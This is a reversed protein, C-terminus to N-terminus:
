KVTVTIKRCVGNNAIVYVTCKGRSRATITGAKSVKAVKKDDTYYRLEAAHTLLKKKSNEKEAEAKIKFTKKYEENTLSLIVKTKNATIKKANTRKEYKMAVHIASSKAVYKKKGDAMQYAAIYYKYARDKKLKKHTYTRKAAKVTKLKKYNRRGDCYSWYVEYGSADKWKLWTLKIGDSGKQKGTALLISLDKRKDIENGTQGSEDPVSTPAEPEATVGPAPTPAEPEATVGPTPTPTGPEITVGPASTGPETTMGPAPTPTGSETPEGPVPTLTGSGGSGASGGPVPMLTGPGTQKPSDKYCIAYTSFKDTEFTFETSEEKYTGDIIDTKGEHLRIIQYNRVTLVDKNRIKEPIVITVSIPKELEHIITKEGNGVQKFLSADFYTVEAGAGVSEEATKQVQAKEEEEIEVDPAVELWIKASAGSDIEAIEEETLVSQALEEKSNNMVTDPAGPLVEVEKEIKGADPDAPIGLPDITRYLKAGCRECIKYQRGSEKETAEKEVTWQEPFTHGAAPITETASGNNDTYDKGELTAKAQYGKTGIETCAAEKIVTYSVEGSLTKTHSSDNKCIFEATATNTDGDKGWTWVPEDWDHGAAPITEKKKEECTYAVGDYVLSATYSREGAAECAAAKTVESAVKVDGDAEGTTKTEAFDCRWDSDAHACTITATATFDDAAEAWKWVVKYSHGAAPIATTEKKGCRSCIHEKTGDATCSVARTTKWEGFSHASVTVTRSSENGAKDTVTITKTVAQGNDALKLLFSNDADLTVSTNNVTVGNEALNAETVTVKTGECCVGENTIGEIEIQPVTQDLMFGESDAYSINGANDEAKVCIVYNNDESISFSGNYEQWATIQEVNAKEMGKNSLYYWVEKVKSGADTTTITVTQSERFFIGFTLSNLLRGVWTKDAMKITIDPAKKDAVGEVTVNMDKSIGSITYEGNNNLHVESGNVKAKMNSADYGSAVKVRFTYSGGYDVRSASNVAEVTYGEGSNLVVTYTKIKWNATYTRNGMSGKEITVKMNTSGSLGTGSWGAFTYGTKAPNKLTIANSEITYSTLNGAVTGGDLTYSITYSVPTWKAWYEKNGTATASISTVKTGTLSSNSYWGVFNYGTKKWDTPLAAGTGYKYSTLATGGSGGNGHLSVTYSNVTWHAYLTHNGATTVKDASIMKSGGSASTYWGGFTYGTRTPTPLDGYANGYTVTKSAPDSTGGNANFSVTYSKATWKAYLTVATTYATAALSTVPSGACNQDTYWGGFTYGTKTPSVLATATGYTHKTPCGSGHTGSFAAGGKDKYTIAYANATWTATYSRNEKSGKAVTVTTNSTGSLGTGSWGAFTYGTREPNILTFSDTTRRYSAPNTKGAPLAGGALNYTITYPPETSLIIRNNDKDLVGYLKSDEMSIKDADEDTLTYLPAKSGEALVKGDDKSNCALTIKHSLSSTISPYLTGSTIDLYIIDSVNANGGINLKGTTSNETSYYIGGGQGSANVSNGLITGGTLNLSAGSALYIGGGNSASNSSISGATMNCIGKLYVGGGAHTYPYGGVQGNTKCNQITGGNINLTGRCYIGGGAYTGVDGSNMNYNNQIVAGGNMTVTGSNVYVAPGYAEVNNGDITIDELTLTGGNVYFLTNEDSGSEIGKYSSSRELRGGGKITVDGGVILSGSVTVTVGPNIIYTTGGQLTQTEWIEDSSITTENATAAVVPSVDSIGPLSLLMCICLFVTFVRHKKKRIDKKM